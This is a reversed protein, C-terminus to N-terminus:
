HRPPTFTIVQSMYALQIANELVAQRPDPVHLVRRLRISRFTSLYGCRKEFDVLTMRDGGLVLHDLGARHPEVIARFVECAKDYM